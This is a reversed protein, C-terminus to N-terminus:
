HIIEWSPMAANKLANDVIPNGVKGAGSKIADGLWDSAADYISQGFLAGITSKGNLWKGLKDGGLKTLYGTLKGMGVNILNFGSLDVRRLRARWWMKWMADDKADDWKGQHDFYFESQAVRFNGFQTNVQPLQGTSTAIAVGKDMKRPWADDGFSLSFVQFWFGGHKAGGWLEKPTKAWADKGTDLGGGVDQFGGQKKKDDVDKQTQKKCQDTNFEVSGGGLDTCFKSKSNEKNAVCDDKQKKCTDEIMKKIDNKITEEINPASSSGDGCFFGPFSGAIFGALKGLVSGIGMPLWGFAADGVALEGAKKCFKAYDMEQVPLGLKKTEPIFPVMSPSLAFGSTVLPQYKDAVKYSKYAGVYPTTLAVVVELKSLVPLAVNLVKVYKQSASVLKAEIKIMPTEIPACLWVLPCFPGAAICAACLAIAIGLMVILMRMMILVGLLAAMVLNILVIINMGRAHFGASTYTIADAGDQVRQRYIIADGTGIIFFVAGALVASIFIGVVMIAGSKDSRLDGTDRGCRRRANGGFYDLLRDLINM